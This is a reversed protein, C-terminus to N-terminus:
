TLLFAELKSSFKLIWELMKPLNNKKSSIITEILTPIILCLLVIVSWTPLINHYLINKIVIVAVIMAIIGGFVLGPNYKKTKISQVIHQISNLITFDILLMMVVTSVVLNPILYCITTWVFGVLSLFLLWLRTGLITEGPIESAYNNKHYHYINWEEMEHIFLVLPIIFFVNKMVELDFIM